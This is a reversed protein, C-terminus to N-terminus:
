LGKEDERKICRRYARAQASHCTHADPRRVRRAQAHAVPGNFVAWLARPHLPMCLWLRRRPPPEGQETDLGQQQKLLRRARRHANKQRARDLAAAARSEASVQDRTEGSDNRWEGVDLQGFEPLRCASERATSGFWGGRERRTGSPARPEANPAYYQSSRSPSFLASQVSGLARAESAAGTEACGQTTSDFSPVAAM